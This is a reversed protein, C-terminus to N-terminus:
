KPQLVCEALSPECYLFDDECCGYKGEGCWDGEAACEATAMCTSSEGDCTLGACCGTEICPEDLVACSLVCGEDSCSLDGCCAQDLCSENLGGCSPAEPCLGTAEDCEGFCCDGAECAQGFDACCVGEVSIGSCCPGSEGNPACPGDDDSGVSTTGDGSGSESASGSEDGTDNSDGSTGSDGTSGATSDNGSPGDAPCGLASTLGLLLVSRALRARLM